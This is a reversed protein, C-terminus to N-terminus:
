SDDKFTGERKKKENLIVFQDISQQYNFMEIELPSPEENFKKKFLHNFFLVMGIGIGLSYPIQLMLPFKNHTGTMYYYIKEHVAKMAVDEHFNMIALAAGVFLLLWVGVFLVKPWTKHKTNVEILTQVPGVIQLDIQPFLEYIHQIVDVVDILVYVDDKKTIHYIPVKSIKEIMESPGVLQAIDNIYLTQGVPVKFKQKMRLYLTQTM